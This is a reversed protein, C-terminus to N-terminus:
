SFVQVEQLASSLEESLRQHTDYKKEKMDHLM